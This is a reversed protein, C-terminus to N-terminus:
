RNKFEAKLASVSKDYYDWVEDVTMNKAMEVSRIKARKLIMTVRDEKPKLNKNSTDFEAVRKELNSLRTRLQDIEEVIEEFGKKM